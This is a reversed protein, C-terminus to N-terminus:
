PLFCAAPSHMVTITLGVGGASLRSSIRGVDQL